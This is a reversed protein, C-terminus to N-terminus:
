SWRILVYIGVTVVRQGSGATMNVKIYNINRGYDLTEFQCM